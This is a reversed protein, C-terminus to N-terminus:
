AVGTALVYAGSVLLLAGAARALHIGGPLLKEALVLATLLAVWVLNMVGVAFLVLMLVWCCGLCFLGHEWGMRLAGRWGYRWHVLLFALPSRCHRLCVNKFPTFQYAGALLFVAGSAAASTTQMMPSLLAARDLGVQLVTAAVSFVGWALLYGAAFVSAPVSRQGRQRQRRSIAAFTLIMPAASPLMMGLMMVWWMALTAAIREADWSSAMAMGPMANMATMAMQQKAIVLYLWAAAAVGLLSSLLLIRDRPLPRAPM